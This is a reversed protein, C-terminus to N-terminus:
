LCVSRKCEGTGEREGELGKLGGKEGVSGRHRNGEKVEEGIEEAPIWCLNKDGGGQGQRKRGKAGNIRNKQFHVNAGL